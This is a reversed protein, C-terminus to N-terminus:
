GAPALVWGLTRVMVTAVPRVVFPEVGLPMPLWLMRRAYGPLLGVAAGAIVNYTPRALM